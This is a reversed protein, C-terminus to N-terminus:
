EFLLGPNTELNPIDVITGKAIVEPHKRCLVLGTHVLFFDSYNFLYFKNHNMHNNKALFIVHNANHPDAETELYKSRICHDRAWHIAYNEFAIQQFVIPSNVVSNNSLM